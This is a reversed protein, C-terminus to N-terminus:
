DLPSRYTNHVTTLRHGDWVSGDVTWLFSSAYSSADISPLYAALTPRLGALFRPPLHDATPIDTPAFTLHAVIRTYGVSTWRHGFTPPTLPIPLLYPVRLHPIRYRRLGACTGIWDPTAIRLYHYAALYGGGVQEADTRLHPTTRGGDHSRWNLRSSNRWERNMREPATTRVLFCRGTRPLHPLVTRSICRYTHYTPLTCAHPLCLRWVLPVTVGTGTHHLVSRSTPTPLHPHPPLTHKAYADPTAPHTTCRTYQPRETFQPVLPPTPRLGTTWSGALRLVIWRMRARYLDRSSHLGM